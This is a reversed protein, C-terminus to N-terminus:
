GRLYKEFRGPLADAAARFVQDLHWKKGIEVADHGIYLIVSQVKGASKGRRVLSHGQRLSSLSPKNPGASYGALMPPRGPLNVSHLDGITAAYVRPTLRNPGTRAPVNDTPLWLMPKGRITGGEEFISAFWINHHALMAAGASVQPSRPYVEVRFANQWKQSFGAAGIDARGRAKVEAGTEEMAASAARAVVPYFAGFVRKVMEKDIDFTVRFAM